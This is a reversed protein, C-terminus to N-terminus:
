IKFNIKLMKLFTGKLNQNAIKTKSTKLPTYFDLADLAIYKRVEGLNAKFSFSAQNANDVKTVNYIDTVDWIQSIGNANSIAYSM